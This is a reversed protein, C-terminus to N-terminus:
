RRTYQKFLLRKELLPIQDKLWFSFIAPQRTIEAKLLQWRIWRYDQVEDPNPMLSSELRAAFVPCFENEVIGNYPPSRYSYDDLIEKLNDVASIGLEFKARRKVAEHMSEGPAPHGCVSNTWVDPWVKKSSARRTLLLEGKANFIYCSFALHLPTQAHHSALKPASGIPRHARDLLVIREDM